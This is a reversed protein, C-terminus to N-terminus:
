ANQDGLHGARMKRGMAIAIGVGMGAALLAVWAFGYDCPTALYEGTPNLQGGLQGGIGGGHNPPVVQTVPHDRKWFTGCAQGNSAKYPLFTLALFVVIGLLALYFALDGRKSLILQRIGFLLTFIAVLVGVATWANQPTM